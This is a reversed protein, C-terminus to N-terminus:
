DENLHNQGTYLRICFDHTGSRVYSQKKTRRVVRLERMWETGNKKRSVHNGSGAERSVLQGDQNLRFAKFEPLSSLQAYSEIVPEPANTFNAPGQSTTCCSQDSSITDPVCDPRHCPVRPVTESTCTAHGAIQVSEGQLEELNTFASPTDPVSASPAKLDKVAFNTPKPLVVRGDWRRPFLLCSPSCAQCPKVTSSGNSVTVLSSCCTM